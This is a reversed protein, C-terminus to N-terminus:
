DDCGAYEKEYNRYYQSDQNRPIGIARDDLAEEGRGEIGQAIEAAAPDDREPL